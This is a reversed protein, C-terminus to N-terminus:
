FLRPTPDLLHANLADLEKEMQQAIHLANHEASPVLPKSQPADNCRIERVGNGTGPNNEAFQRNAPM